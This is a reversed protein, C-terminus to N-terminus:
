SSSMGISDLVFNYFKTVHNELPVLVGGNKFAKSNMNEHCWRCAAFDQENVRHFLEVADMPDFDSKAMEEPDFLWDCIVISRDASVPYIRHTIVHDPTLNIFVHPVITMGYYLRDDEPLLGKLMPRSGKGSISFYEVGDKFSAGAGVTNQTGVGSRFEPLAETLEPHISSCHYCEQFNEVIIKWNAKVDYTKSHAVRLDPIQYRGFTELNGLREMIQQNLLPEAPEPNESFNIWILGNWVELNVKELGYDDNNILQERCENANPVGALSGNLGYTWSHYPCRLAKTTGSAESCLTAGRHRCVNLFARLVNDKGRIILVNEDNIRTTIYQGHEAVDYEYGVFLWSESFINKKELEFVDPSTYLEGKLTPQLEGKNKLVNQNAAM